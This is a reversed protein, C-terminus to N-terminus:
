RKEIKEYSYIRWFWISNQRNETVQKIINFGYQGIFEVIDKSTVVRNRIKSTFDEIESISIKNQEELKPLYLQEYEEPTKPKKDVKM